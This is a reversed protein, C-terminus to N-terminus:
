RVTQFKGFSGSMCHPDWHRASTLVWIRKDLLIHFLQEAEKRPGREGWDCKEHRTEDELCVLPWVSNPAKFFWPICGLPQLLNIQFPVHKGWLNWCGWRNEVWTVLPLGARGVCRTGLYHELRVSRLAAGPFEGLLRRQGTIKRLCTSFLVPVGGDILFGFGWCGFLWWCGSFM